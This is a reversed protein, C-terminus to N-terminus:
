FIKRLYKIALNQDIFFPSTAVTIVSARPILNKILDIKQNNNIYDLKPDFFDMDIDLLFPDGPVIEFNDMEAQSSINIVSEILGSHLAPDIFNGVNLETNTYNFITDLDNSLPYKTPKRSDKHQDIHILKIKKQFSKKVSEINWFYYAHNHNDFIYVPIKKNNASFEFKLCNKLGVCSKIKQNDDFDEFAVESGVQLKSIDAEILPAVHLKPEKRQHYSFANNSVPNHIFFGRYHHRDKALRHRM